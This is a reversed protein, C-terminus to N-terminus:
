PPLVYAEMRMQVAQYRTTSHGLLSIPPWQLFAFPFEEKGDFRKTYNKFSFETGFYRGHKFLADHFRGFAFCVREAPYVIYVPLIPHHKSFFGEWFAFLHDTVNGPVCM